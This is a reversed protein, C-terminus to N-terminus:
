GGRGLKYQWKENVRLHLRYVCLLMRLFLECGGSKVECSLHVESGRPLWVAYALM